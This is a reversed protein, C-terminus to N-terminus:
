TFELDYLYELSNLSATIQMNLIQTLSHFTIIANKDADKEAISNIRQLLHNNVIRVKQYHEDLKKLEIDANNGKKHEFYQRLLYISTTRVLTEEVTSFPLHFRAMPRFPYMIPCNSTAMMIGLISSLGEQISTKKQYTRETTVCRVLCNEYSNTDKFEEVLTAINVSIPCYPHEEKKFFCCSCQNCELRAWEPKSEQEPHISSITSSDIIIEFEKCTDDDFYFIYDIRYADGGM